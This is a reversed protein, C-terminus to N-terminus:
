FKKNTTQCNKCTTFQIDTQRNLHKTNKAVQFHKKQSHNTLKIPVFKNELGSNAAKLQM